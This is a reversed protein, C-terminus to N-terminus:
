YIATGRTLLLRKPIFAAKLTSYFTDNPMLYGGCGGVRVPHVHAWCDRQGQVMLMRCLRFLIVVRPQVIWDLFVLLSWNTQPTYRFRLWATLEGPVTDQAEVSAIPLRREKQSEKQGSKRQKNRKEEEDEKKKKKKETAMEAESMLDFPDADDDLLNGFRNAVVCGYADPLMKAQTYHLSFTVHLELLSGRWLILVYRCCFVCSVFSGNAQGAVVSTLQQPRLLRGVFPQLLKDVSKFTQM